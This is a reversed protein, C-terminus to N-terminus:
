YKFIYSISYQARLGLPCLSSVTTRSEQDEPIQTKKAETLLAINKSCLHQQLKKRLKDCACM